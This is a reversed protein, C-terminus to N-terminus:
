ERTLSVNLPTTEGPRVQIETTFRRYGPKNVEVVHRGESVQVLLQENSAGANWREGDILVEADGPQVRISLTAVRASSPPNRDGPDPRRDPPPPPGRRPLPGGRPPMRGQDPPGQPGPPPNTPAPPGEDPEGPGLPELRGSIKRTQNPSLYLREHISRHGPLYIVIEHQGPELHLRQFVGDFDDVQGAFYGDVFVSANNPKVAVRLESEYRGYTAGYPYRPPYGYQAFVPAAATSVLLALAAIPLARHVRHLTSPRVNYERCSAQDRSHLSHAM